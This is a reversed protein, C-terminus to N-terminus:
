AIDEVKSWDRGDRWSRWYEIGGTTSALAALVGRQSEQKLLAVRTPLCEAIAVRGHSGYARLDYSHYVECVAQQQANDYGGIFIRRGDDCLSPYLLDALTLVLKWSGTACDRWSQYILTDGGSPVAALWYWYDGSRVLAGASDDSAAVTCAELLECTKRRYRHLLQNGGSYGLVYLKDRFAQPYPWRLAPELDVSEEEWSNADSRGRRVQTTAQLGHVLDISMTERDYAIAPAEADLTTDEPTAWAGSGLPRRTWYASGANAYTLYLRSHNGEVMFPFKVNPLPTGAIFGRGVARLAIGDYPASRTVGYAVRGAEMSGPYRGCDETSYLAWGVVESLPPSAQNQTADDVKRGVHGGVVDIDVMGLNTWNGPDESYVFAQENHSWGQLAATTPKAKRWLLMDEGFAQAMCLTAGGDLAVEGLLPPNNGLLQMNGAGYPNLDFAYLKQVDPRVAFLIDGARGWRVIPAGALVELEAVPYSTTTGYVNCIWHRPYTGGGAAYSYRHWTAYMDGSAGAWSVYDSVGAGVTGFVNTGGGIQFGYALEPTAGGIDWGCWFMDCQKFATWQRLAGFLLTDGVIEIHSLAHAYGTMTSPLGVYGIVSMARPDAVNITYLRVDTYSVKGAIAGAPTGTLAFLRDQDRAIDVLSHGGSFYDSWDDDLLLDCLPAEGGEEGQLSWSAIGSRNVTTRDISYCHVTAFVCNEPRRTPTPPIYPDPYPEPEPGTDGVVAWGWEEGSPIGDVNLDFQIHYEQVIATGWTEESAIGQPAIAIILRPTGWAEASAIGDPLIVPTEILTITAAFGASTTLSIPDSWTDYTPTGDESRFGSGVTYAIDVDPDNAWAMAYLDTAATVTVAGGTFYFNQVPGGAEDFEIEQTTGLLNFSADYLACQVRVTEAPTIISVQLGYVKTGTAQLLQGRPISLYTDPAPTGAAVTPAPPTGDGVSWEGPLAAGNYYIEDPPYAAMAWRGGAGSSWFIYRASANVYQPQGNFTGSEHYEGNYTADGAGTVVWDALSVKGGQWGVSIKVPVATQEGGEPVAYRQWAVGYLWVAGYVAIGLVLLRVTGRIEKM